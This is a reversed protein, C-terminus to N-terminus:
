EGSLWVLFRVWPFPKKPKEFVIEQKQNDFVLNFQDWFDTRGLLPIVDSEIFYCRIELEQDGLKIKIKSPYAKIGRGGVGGMITKKRKDIKAGIFEVIELPLSTADAGSDVLFELRHWGSTTKIPLDVVPDAIKGFNIKKFLLPFKIKTSV